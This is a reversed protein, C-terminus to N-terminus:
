EKQRLYFFAHDADGTWEGNPGTVQTSISEFGDKGNELSTAGMVEVETGALVDKALEQGTTEDVISYEAVGSANEGEASPAEFKRIKGIGYPRPDAVTPTERGGRGGRGGTGSGQSDPGYVFLMIPLNPVKRTVQMDDKPVVPYWQGAKRYGAFPSNGATPIAIDGNGLLGLGNPDWTKGDEKYLTVFVKKDAGNYENDWYGNVVKYKLARQYIDPVDDDNEDTYYYLDLYLLNNGCFVKSSYRRAVGNTVSNQWDLALGKLELIRATVNSGSLTGFADAPRLLEDNVWYNVYYATIWFNTSTEAYWDGIGHAVIVARDTPEVNNAWTLVYDVGEVLNTNLFEDHVTVGKHPEIPLGTYAYEDPDIAIQPVARITPCEFAGMSYGWFKSGYAIGRFDTEEQVLGLAAPWNCRGDVGVRALLLDDYPYDENYAYAYIDTTQGPLNTTGEPEEIAGYEDTARGYATYAVDYVSEEIFIDGDDAEDSNNDNGVVVCNTMALEALYAHVAEHDAGRFSCNKVLAKTGWFDIADGYFERVYGDEAPLAMTYHRGNFYCVEVDAVGAGFSMAGGLASADPAAASNFRFACREVRSTCDDGAYIAGGYAGYGYAGDSDAHNWFFEAQCAKFSSGPSMIAIAGGCADNHTYTYDDGLFMYSGGAGNSTFRVCNSVCLANPVFDEVSSIVIAGGYDVARNGSFVTNMTRATAHGGLSEAGLEGKASSKAATGKVHLEEPLGAVNVRGEAAIAGGAYGAENDYFTTSLVDLTVPAEDAVAARTTCIAGGWTAMNAEFACGALVLRVNGDWLNGNADVMPCASAYIAGGMGNQQCVRCDSFTSDTVSSHGTLRLAYIAGGFEEAEFGRFECGSVAFADEEISIAGGCWSAPTGAGKFLGNDGRFSLGYWRVIRNDALDEPLVDAAIQRLADSVVGGKKSAVVDEVPWSECPRVEFISRGSGYLTTYNDYSRFFIGSGSPVVFQDVDWEGDAFEVTMDRFDRANLESFDFTARDYEDRRWFWIRGNVVSVGRPLTGQDYDYVYFDLGYGIAWPAVDGRGEEGAIAYGGEEVTVQEPNWAEWAEGPEGALSEEGWPDRLGWGADGGKVTVNPGIVVRLGDDAEEAVWIAPAGLGGPVGDRGKGGIVDPTLDSDTDLIYLQTPHYDTIVPVSPLGPESPDFPILTGPDIIAIAQGGENVIRLAPLGNDVGAMEATPGNMNYGNLDLVIFGIDDPLTITRNLDAGLTVRFGINEDIEDYELTIWDPHGFRDALLPSMCFSIEKYGLKVVADELYNCYLERELKGDSQGEPFVRGHEYFAPVRLMSKGAVAYVGDRPWYMEATGRDVPVGGTEYYIAHVENMATRPLVYEPDEFIIRELNPFGALAGESLVVGRAVFIETVETDTTEWPLFVRQDMEGEGDFSLRTGCWDGWEDYLEEKWAVVSPKDDKGIEWPNTKCWGKPYGIISFTVFSETTQGDAEHYLRHYGDQGVLLTKEGEGTGTLGDKVLMTRDTDINRQTIRATGEAVAGETWNGASWTVGEIECPRDLFRTTRLDIRCVGTARRAYGSVDAEHQATIKPLCDDLVGQVGDVTQERLVAAKAEAVLRDTAASRTLSPGAASDIQGNAATRAAVLEPPPLMVRKVYGEHTDDAFVEYGEAIWAPDLTVREGFYGGSITIEVDSATAPVVERSLKLEEAKPAFASRVLIPDKLFGDTVAMRAIATDIVPAPEVAAELSARMKGGISRCYVAGVDWGDGYSNCIEGGNMEFLGGVNDIAATDSYSYTDTILGGNMVFTGCGLAVAGADDSGVNAITGGDMVFTGTPGVMVAGATSADWWLDGDYYDGYPGDQRGLFGRQTADALALSSAALGLSEEGMVAVVSPTFEDRVRAVRNLIGVQLAHGRSTWSIEHGNLDLRADVGALVTMPGCKADDIVLNDLLTVVNTGNVNAYEFLKGRSDGDGKGNLANEVDVWVCPRAVINDISMSSYVLPIDITMERKGNPLVYGDMEGEVVLEVKVHTLYDADYQASHSYSGSDEQRLKLEGEDTVAKISVRNDVSNLYLGVNRDLNGDYRAEPRDREFNEWGPAFMYDTSRFVKAEGGGISIAEFENYDPVSIRLLGTCDKLLDDDAYPPDDPWCKMTVLGSCGKFADTGIREVWEGIEVGKMQACNEFAHAGINWAYVRAGKIGTGWPGTTEFDMMESGWFLADITLVGNENTYACVANPDEAGIRWPNEQTGLPPADKAAAADQVGIGAAFLAACVFKIMKNM